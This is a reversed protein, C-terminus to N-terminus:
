NYDFPITHSCTYWSGPLMASLTVILFNTYNTFLTLASCYTEEYKLCMLMETKGVNKHRQVISGLLSLLLYLQLDLTLNLYAYVYEFGLHKIRKHISKTHM